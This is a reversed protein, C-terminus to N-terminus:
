RNNWIVTGYVGFWIKSVWPDMITNKYSCADKETMEKFEIAVMSMSKEETTLIRHYGRFEPWFKTSKSGSM